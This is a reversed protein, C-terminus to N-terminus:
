AIETVLCRKLSSFSQIRVTKDKALMALLLPLFDAFISPLEINLQQCHLIAWDQYSKAKLRRGSLWEYFVIGLAYIDSQISKPQGQFLEPAMYRPTANMVSNPQAILNAQEFDILKLMGAYLVFHEVKIDSHQWGSQELQDLADIAQWFCHKIQEYSLQAPDQQFFLQAHPLLLIQTFDLIDNGQQMTYNACVQFPLVISLELSQFHCYCELERLFGETAHISTDSLQAKLWFLEKENTSNIVEFRYLRRGFSMSQAKTHLQYDFTHLANADFPLLNKANQHLSM